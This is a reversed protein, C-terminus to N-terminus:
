LILSKYNLNPYDYDYLWEKAQYILLAKLMQEKDIANLRLSKYLNRVFQPDSFDLALYRGAQISNVHRLYTDDRSEQVVSWISDSVTVKKATAESIEIDSTRDLYRRTARQLTRVAQERFLSGMLDRYAESMPTRWQIRHMTRNRLQKPPM